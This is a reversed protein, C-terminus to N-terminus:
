KIIGCGTTYYYVTILLYCHSICLCRAVMIAFYKSSHRIAYYGLMSIKALLGSTKLVLCTYLIQCIRCIATEFVATVM